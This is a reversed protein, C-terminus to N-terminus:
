KDRDPRKVRLKKPKVLKGTRRASVAKVEEEEEAAKDAEKTEPVVNHDKENEVEFRSLKWLNSASAFGTSAGDPVQQAGSGTKLGPM